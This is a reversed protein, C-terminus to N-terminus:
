IQEEMLKTQTEFEDYTEPIVGYEARVNGLEEDWVSLYCKEKKLKDNENLEKYFIRKEEEDFPKPLSYCVGVGDFQFYAAGYGILDDSEKQPQKDEDLIKEGDEIRALETEGYEFPALNNYSPDVRKGWENGLQQDYSYPWVM